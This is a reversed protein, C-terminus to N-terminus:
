LFNWIDAGFRRMHTMVFYKFQGWKECIETSKGLSFVRACYFRLNLVINIYMKEIELRTSTYFCLLSWDTRRSCVPIFGHFKYVWKEYTEILLSEHARKVPYKLHTIFWADGQYNKSRFLNRKRNYRILFLLTFLFIRDFFIYISDMDPTYFHM